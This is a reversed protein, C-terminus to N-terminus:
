INDALLSFFNIFFFCVLLQIATYSCKRFDQRSVYYYITCQLWDYSYREIVFYLCVCVCMTRAIAGHLFSLSTTQYHNQWKKKFFFRFNYTNVCLTILDLQM